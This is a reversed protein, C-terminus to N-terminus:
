EEETETETLIAIASEVIGPWGDLDDRSKLVAVAEAVKRREAAFAQEASLARRLNEDALDRATRVEEKWREIESRYVDMEREAAEYTEDCM